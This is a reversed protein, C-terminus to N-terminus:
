YVREAFLLIKHRHVLVVRRLTVVQFGGGSKLKGSPTTIEVFGSTAGSPVTATILSPSVAAFAAATGNFTVNTAGILNTGLIKM